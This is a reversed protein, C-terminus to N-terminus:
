SRGLGMMMRATIYLGAVNVGIAIPYIFEGFGGLGEVKGFTSGMAVWALGGGLINIGIIEWPPPPPKPGRNLLIWILVSLPVTGCWGLLFASM